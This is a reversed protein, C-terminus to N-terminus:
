HPVSAYWPLVDGRDIPRGMRDRFVPPLSPDHPTDITGKRSDLVLKRPGTPLTDMPGKPEPRLWDPMPGPSLRDVFSGVDAAWTDANGQYKRRNLIGFREDPEGKDLVPVYTAREAESVNMPRALDTLVQPKRLHSKMRQALLNLKPDNPDFGGPQFPPASPQM